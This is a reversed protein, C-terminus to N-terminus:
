RPRDHCDTLKRFAIIGGSQDVVNKSILIVLAFMPVASNDDASREAKIRLRGLGMQTRELIQARTQRPVDRM